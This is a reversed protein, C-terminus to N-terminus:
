KGGSFNSFRSLLLNWRYKRIFSIEEKSIKREKKHFTNKVYQFFSVFFLSISKNTYSAKLCSIITMLFDLGLNYFYDGLKKAKSKKYVFGTEKLLKVKLEPITQVKWNNKIAILEDINDWGITERIGKIDVFCQKRYSKIAGRIHKKNAVNEYIWKKNKQIYIHGGVMGLKEDLVFGNKVEELYNKPLIIDADFKCIVDFKNWDISNLGYNFAQVVKAGPQHNEKKNTNIIRFDVFKPIYENAIIETTDTSGDNVLILTFNLYTQNLLSDLTLSLYKEENYAPIVILFNM